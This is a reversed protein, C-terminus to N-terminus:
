SPIKCLFKKASFPANQIENEFNTRFSKEQPVSQCNKYSKKLIQDMTIKLKPKVNINEDTFYDTM